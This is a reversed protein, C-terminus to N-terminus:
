SKSLEIALRDQLSLRKNQQATGASVAVRAEASPFLTNGQLDQIRDVDNQRPTSTHSGEDSGEPHDNTQITELMPQSEMIGTPSEDLQDPEEDAKISTESVEDLVSTDRRNDVAETADGESDAEPEVGTEAEAAPSCFDDHAPPSNTEQCQHLTQDLSLFNHVSSRM